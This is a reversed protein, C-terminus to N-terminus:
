VVRQYVFSYISLVNHIEEWRNGLHQNIEMIIIIFINNVDGLLLDIASSVYM